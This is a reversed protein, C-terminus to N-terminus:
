KLKLTHCRCNTWINPNEDDNNCNDRHSEAQLKILPQLWRFLVVIRWGGVPIKLNVQDIGHKHGPKM